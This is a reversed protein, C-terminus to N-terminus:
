LRDAVYDSRCPEMFPLGLIEFLVIKTYINEIVLHPVILKAFVDWNRANRAMFVYILPVAILALSPLGIDFRIIGLVFSPLKLLFTIGKNGFRAEFLPRWIIWSGIPLKM